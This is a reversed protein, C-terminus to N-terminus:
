PESRGTIWATASSQWMACMAVVSAATAVWDLAAMAESFLFASAVGLITLITLMWRCADSRLRSVGFTLALVLSSGVAIFLLAFESSVSRTLDEWELAAAIWGAGVAALQLWEFFRISAPPQM